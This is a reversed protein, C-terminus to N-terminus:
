PQRLGAARGRNKGSGVDGQLLRIMRQPRALDTVIDDWPAARRHPSSM